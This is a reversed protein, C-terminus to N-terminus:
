RAWRCQSSCLQGGPWPGLEPASQRTRSASSASSTSRGGIGECRRSRRPRLLAPRRGPAVLPHPGLRHAPAHRHVPKVHGPVGGPPRFQAGLQQAKGGAFVVILHIRQAKDPLQQRSLRHEGMWLLLEDALGDGDRRCPRADGRDVEVAVAEAGDPRCPVPAVVNNLSDQITLGSQLQGFKEIKSHQIDLSSDPYHALTATQLHPQPPTSLHRCGAATRIGSPAWPRAAREPNVLLACELRCRAAKRRAPRCSRGRGAGALFMGTVLGSSRIIPSILRRVSTTPMKGLSSTM